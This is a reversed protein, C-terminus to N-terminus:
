RADSESKKFGHAHTCTYYPSSYSPNVLAWLSYILQGKGPMQSCIFSEWTKLCPLFGCGRTDSVQWMVLMCLDM